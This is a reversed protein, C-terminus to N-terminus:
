YLPASSDGITQKEKVSRVTNSGDLRRDSSVCNSLWGVRVLDRDVPRCVFIVLYVEEDAKGV